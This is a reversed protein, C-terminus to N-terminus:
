INRTERRSRIAAADYGRVQDGSSKVPDGSDGVHDVSGGVLDGSYGSQVDSSCRLQGGSGKEQVSSGGFGPGHDCDYGVREVVAAAVVVVVAEHAEAVTLRVEFVSANSGRRPNLQNKIFGQDIQVTILDRRSFILFKVTAFIQKGRVRLSSSSSPSSSFFIM